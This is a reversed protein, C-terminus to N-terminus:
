TEEKKRTVTAALTEKLSAPVTDATDLLVVEPIENWLWFARNLVRDDWITNIDNRILRQASLAAGLGGLWDVVVRNIIGVIAQSNYPDHSGKKESEPVLKRNELLWALSVMDHAVVSQSAIILGTEPETVYGKDPGYTALTRTAVTLVLRQKDLLSAVTNAEATKEHFTSADHHYQLRSDTRWYGVAAKLGLSDGALPHRGCRPMLVLHDINKLINPMMIGGKWSGGITPGDEFFADWGEEEPFYLEAGATQAAQAIGSQEMLKRSSGKIGEPSLKVHEIGSMDSVIVRDAGKEKLLAVMAAIGAPNSTAPYPNGSNLVPKILITDGKSLWAFDTAAEAAARVAEAFREEAAGKSVGALAVPTQAGSHPFTLDASAERGPFSIMAGAAASIKLFDRRKLEFINKM